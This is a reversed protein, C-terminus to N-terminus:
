SRGSWVSEFRASRGTSSCPSRPPRPRAVRAARRAAALTVTGSVVAGVTATDAGASPAVTAFLTVNLAVAVSLTPTAFTLERDVPGCTPAARCSSATSSRTRCACARRRSACWGPSRGRRRRCGSSTPPACPSRRSRLPSRPRPRRSRPSSRCCPADVLGAAVVARDRARRARCRAPVAAASDSSPEFSKTWIACLVESFGPVLPSVTEAQTSGSTELPERRATPLSRM